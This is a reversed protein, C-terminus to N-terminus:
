GHQHKVMWFYIIGSTAKLGLYELIVKALTHRTREERRERRERQTAGQEVKQEREKGGDRETQVCM